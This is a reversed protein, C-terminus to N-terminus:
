NLDQYVPDSKVIRSTDLSSSMGLDKVVIKSGDLLGTESISTESSNPIVAGDSGKTIRIRHVTSKTKVALADYIQAASSESSVTLEQPLGKFPKGRPAVEFRLSSM